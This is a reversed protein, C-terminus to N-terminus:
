ESGEPDVHPADGAEEDEGGRESDIEEISRYEIGFVEVFGGRFQKTGRFDRFLPWERYDQEAIGGNIGIAIMYNKALDYDEKLVAVALKFDNSCSTWDHQDLCKLAKDSDGGQKTAIAYNIVFIRKKVDNSHNKITNLSFGLLNEALKWREAVLLEYTLEILSNDANELDDPFLKRWLVHALKVGIEYLVEYSNKVYRRSAGLNSGIDPIPTPLAGNNRCKAIYQESVIGENHVFLNRRETLEVFAGWTDLGKRLSVSFRNELWGFQEEHSKRLLTEIEKELISERAEEISSFEVLQSYTINRDSGNLLDPKRNLFVRLLRGIYADYESVFSVIFSRPLLSAAAQTTDIKKKKRAAMRNKEPPISFTRVGEGDEEVEEGHEELFKTFNDSADKRAISTMAMVLPLSTYLADLHKAFTEIEAHISYNM